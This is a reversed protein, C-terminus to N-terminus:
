PRDESYCRRPASIILASAEEDDAQIRLTHYGEPVRHPLSVVLDPGSSAPIGGHVVDGGELHLEYRIARGAHSTRIRLTFDNISGDWAVIVPELMRAMPSEPEGLAAVVARVADETAEVTEGSAAEYSPHIGYQRMLENM